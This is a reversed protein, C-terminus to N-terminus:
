TTATAATPEGSRGGPAAQDTYAVEDDKPAVADADPHMVDRNRYHGLLALALGAVIWGAMVLWAQTSDAAPFYNENRLLTAGAGPVLLQGFEGWWGPLFEMPSSSSALPNGLFMILIAGLGLGVRGIAAYLGIVTLANALLAAGIVLASWGFSPLVGLWTSLIAALALGGVVAYTSAAILRQRVGVVLLCILVGGIMGGMALPLAALALGTGRSDDETLPVVDTVTIPATIPATTPAQALAAQAASAAQADAAAKERAGALQAQLAPSVGDPSAAVVQELTAAAAGSAAAAAGLQAVQQSQQARAQGAQAALEQGLQGAVQAMMQTVAPSAASATLIEVQGGPADPTIIAAYSERREIRDVAAARDDVATVTFTGSESLRETAADAMASSGAVDVPLNQPTSTYAPWIFALLVLCVATAAVLAARFPAAPHTGHM